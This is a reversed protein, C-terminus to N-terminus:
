KSQILTQGETSKDVEKAIGNLLEELDKLREHLTLNELRLRKNEEEIMQFESKIAPINIYIKPLQALITIEQQFATQSGFCESWEQIFHMALEEKAGVPDKNRLLKYRAVALAESLTLAADDYKIDFTTDNM